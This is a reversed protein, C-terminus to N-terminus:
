KKVERTWRVNFLPKQVKKNCIDMVTQYSCFLNKAAKRASSWSDIIQGGSDMLVVEKSRSTPGTKRGQQSKTRLRLNQMGNETLISIKRTVLYGEPIPGKFTEWIVRNFLKENYNGHGDALKVCYKNGKKYGKLERTKGNSFIRFIQGQWTAFYRTEYGPIWNQQPGLKM